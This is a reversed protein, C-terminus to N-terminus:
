LIFKTAHGKDSWYEETTVNEDIKEEVDSKDVQFKNETQSVEPKKHKRWPRKARVNSFKCCFLFFFFWMTTGLTIINPAWSMMRTYTM